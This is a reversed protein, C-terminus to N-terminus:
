FTKPALELGEVLDAQYLWLEAYRGQAMLLEKHCGKEMVKGKELVVIQDAGRVTSLRHAIVLVTRGKLLRDLAQQVFHETASDM